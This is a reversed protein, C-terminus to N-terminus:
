PLWEELVGKLQAFHIPKSMYDNMGVALCKERDGKIASATMALIPIDRLRPEPSARIERTTQFGDMEPMQCDMLVADFEERALIEIVDKGNGAITVHYGLQELMARVLKQNIEHDEAVLIRASRKGAEELKGPPAVSARQHPVSVLPGGLELELEFSFMSGRGLESSVEIKGGMLEALRRSISLGLGTGGYKRTTTSDAQSFVEFLHTLSSEPIGVGTDHVEFRLHASRPSRALERVVVRVEGENTFKLANGIGILNNLIQRLRVPDGRFRHPFVPTDLVLRLSKKKAQFSFVMEKDSLLDNLNFEVSDLELKGAEIKSFDLIDNIITLLSDASRLITEAFDRQHKNLPTSLLMEAMGIIGNMPTRIEHSMNALFQSKMRSAELAAEQSALLMEHKKRETVDIISALVYLGDSTEIPNLGIEVSVESGDKRRGTLDRGAGMSRTQPTVFFTSRLGPHAARFREPLLLEVSQGILEEREYGFLATTQLNTLVMRGERDVLLMANPAAEVALRFREEARKRETIDIISALVYIGDSTAVPNLGIEVSVESGDKRRGTLDRGAGMSRPHPDNFYSVRHGPHHAHFRHPVLLEIPSGILEESTYGFLKEALQNSLVIVGERSVMLMASPAAKILTGFAERTSHRTDTVGRGGQPHHPSHYIPM